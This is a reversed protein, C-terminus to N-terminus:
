EVQRIQFYVMCWDIDIQAHMDVDAGASAGKIDDDDQDAGQFHVSAYAVIQAWNSDQLHQTSVVVTCVRKGWLSDTFGHGSTRTRRANDDNELM